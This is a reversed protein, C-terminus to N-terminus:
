LAVFYIKQGPASAIAYVKNANDVPLVFSEGALLEMGDTANATSATVGSPGVYVIGTNTSSAKVLVGQKCAISTTTIQVASTGIASKAGTTFASMYTGTPMPLTSSAFGDDSGSAGLVLKMGQVQVGGGLDNTRFLIRDGASVNDAM